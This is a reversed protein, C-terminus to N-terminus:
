KTRTRVTATVRGFPQPAIDGYYSGGRKGGHSYEEPTATRNM